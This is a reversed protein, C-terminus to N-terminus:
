SLEAFLPIVKDGRQSPDDILQSLNATFRNAPIPLVSDVAQRYVFEDVIVAVYKGRGLHPKAVIRSKEAM